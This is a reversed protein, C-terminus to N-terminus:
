QLLVLDLEKGLRKQDLKVKKWNEMYFLWRRVTTLWNVTGLMPRRSRTIFEQKELELNWKNIVCALQGYTMVPTLILKVTSTFPTSAFSVPVTENIGSSIVPKRRFTFGITITTTSSAPTPPPGPSPWPLQQSQLLRQEVWELHNLDLNWLKVVLCQLQPPQLHWILGFRHFRLPCKYFEASLLCPIRVRVWM